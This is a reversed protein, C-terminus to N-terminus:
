VGDESSTGIACRGSGSGATTSRTTSRIASAPFGMMRAPRPTMREPARWASSASASCDPASSAVDSKPLPRNSPLGHASSM